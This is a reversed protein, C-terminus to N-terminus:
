HVAIGSAEVMRRFEGDKRALLNGPTDYELVKGHSLVLVRDYDLVTQLRHAVTIVTSERMGRVAEQIASDTESDTNSTAEDLVVVRADRLLARALSLLQAEGASFNSGGAAVASDLRLTMVCDEDTEQPTFLGGEVQVRVRRLAWACEADSREDFPDLNARVTGSFLVPSQPVICIRRRLTDVDLEAINIGDIVIRGSKAELARFLASALTTKGSGTRGVIGVKEGSGIDITVDHLVDPLSEDYSLRLKEIHISGSSSPWAAPPQRGQALSEKPLEFYESIREISNLNNSLHKWDNTLFYAAQTLLQATTMVMGASGASVAGLLALTSVVFVAIGGLMQSRFSLWVEITCIAWWQAQTVDLITLMEDMKVREAGFARITVIGAMSSAFVTYLPSTSTSEIRQMDRTCALFGKVYGPGWAFFLAAPLLFWPVIVACTALYGTLAMANNLFNISSGPLESDMVSVDQNFRQLIRGLPNTDFFRLTAGLVSTLLRVYLKQSARLTAWWFLITKAVGFIILLVGILGYISIYFDEHAQAPPLNGVLGSRRGSNGSAEGWVKLWYAEGVVILRLVVNLAIIFFWLAPSSAALYIRYFSWNVAGERRKELQYLLQAKPREPSQKSTPGPDNQASTSEPSTSPTKSSSASSSSEDSTGLRKEALPGTLRGQVRLDHVAGVTQVRGDRMYVLYEAFPVMIGVQHTVLLIRRGNALEGTLANQILHKQVHADVASLPDDLLVTHSPAYFARALGIRAQQGGSLTTSSVRTEDGEEFLALDDLLACAHLVKQYRAAEFPANFIINQKISKGGEIYAAQSAYSLGSVSRSAADAPWKPLKLTGSTRSLEGLVAHLLSSKGSGTPGAILSLKGPPFSVNIDRLMGKMPTASGSLSEEMRSNQLNSWTFTGGIIELPENSTTMEFQTQHPPALDDLSQSSSTGGLSSVLEDVEEEDLFAELRRVSVLANLTAMAFIPITNLPGRVMSFLTVATFATPVDLENGQVKVYCFFSFLSVAIPLAAFIVTFGLETFRVTLLSRIEKSRADLIRERWQSAVGQLKIFRAAGLLETVLSMRKDTKQKWDMQAAYSRRGQLYNLPTALLLISFGALASWGLLRYLFITAIIVEAPAGYLQHLDCGMRLLVNVDLSMMNVVKGVDASTVPRAAEVPPSPSPSRKDAVEDPSTEDDSMKGQKSLEKHTNGNAQREHPNHKSFDPLSPVPEVSGAMNRRRLAKEFLAAVMESRIRLGVQRAHHFNLLEAIYRVFTLFLATLAFVFARQRATWEGQQVDPRDQVAAEGIAELIKKMLAPGAYALTVGCVKYAADLAVDRSNAKVIRWALNIKEGNADRAGARFKSFIIRTDNIFRLRWVDSPLLPRKLSLRMIPAMWRYTLTSGLSTYDEPTTPCSEYNQAMDDTEEVITGDQVRQREEVDVVAEWGGPSMPMSLILSMQVLILAFDITHYVIASSESWLGSALKPLYQLADQISIILLLFLSALTSIPPTQPAQLLMRSVTFLWVLSTAGGRLWDLAFGAYAGWAVMQAGALLSLARLRKRQTASEGNSFQAIRGTRKEIAKRRRESVTEVDHHNVFPPILSRGSPILHAVSLLLALLPISSFIPVDLPNSRLPTQELPSTIM